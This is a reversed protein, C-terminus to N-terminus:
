NFVKKNDFPPHLFFSDPAYRLNKVWNRNIVAFDKSFDFFSLFVESDLTLKQSTIFQFILISQLFHFIRFVLISDSSHYFVHLELINTCCYIFLASEDWESRVSILTLDSKHSLQFFFNTQIGTTCGVRLLQPPGYDTQTPRCFINSSIEM